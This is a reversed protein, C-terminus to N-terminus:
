SCLSHKDRETRPQHNWIVPDQHLVRARPAPSSARPIIVHKRHLGSSRCKIGLVRTFTSPSFQSQSTTRQGGRTYWLVYRGGDDYLMTVISIRKLGAQNIDPPRRRTVEHFPSNLSRELREEYSVLSTRGRIM